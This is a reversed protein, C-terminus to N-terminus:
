RAEKPKEPPRPGQAAKKAAEEAAQRDAERQAQRAAEEAQRTAVLMQECERILRFVPADGRLQPGAQDAYRRLEALAPEWRSRVKMELLGRALHVEPLKDGSISEAQAYAAAAQDAQGLYRHAVGAALQVAANAPDRQLIAKGQEVVKEWSRNRVAIRFLAVRAPLLDDRQALAKRYLVAAGAEDGRRAAVEGLFFPIEADGPDLKQSRVALLEALDLNGRELAVKMMVKQAGPVKPDRALAERALRWAEDPQGSAQYLSALRVRVVADEPFRRLLQAYASAAARPDEPESLVALDVAAERFGPRLAQAREWARRADARKGQQELCVGVNFWAEPLEEAEVVARWKRELLEWDTPVKLKRQEAEAAVAEEFLRQARPSVQPAEPAAAKAGRAPGAKPGQAPAPGSRAPAAAARTPVAAPAAAGGSTACGFAAPLLAALIRATDRATM